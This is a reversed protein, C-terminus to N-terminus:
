LTVVVKSASVGARSRDLAPQVYELGHGVVDPKPAPRIQGNILASPLFDHYIAEGLQKEQTLILAALIGNANVTAPIEDSPPLVVAMKGGGLQALVQAVNLQTDRTAIADYAGALHHKQLAATLDGVIGPTHYDFVESAGLDKCFDFNQRSATAIVKLGAALALQIVASGVSSSGGWVLLTKGTEDVEHSPKALGLNDKLFMGMAATSIALPLVCAEEFSMNDPIPCVGTVPVVVFNQFAGHEPKRTVLGVAHALVRQGNSFESVGEGLEVITGALDNGMIQPFNDGPVMGDQIMWDVPNIAVAHTQVLIEGRGPKGIPASSVQLKDRRQHLWAAQNSSAM